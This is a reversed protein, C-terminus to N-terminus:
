VKMALDLGFVAALRGLCSGRSVGSPEFAGEWTVGKWWRLYNLSHCMVGLYFFYAVETSHWM